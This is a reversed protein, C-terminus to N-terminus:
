VIYGVRRIEDETAGHERMWQAKRAMSAPKEVLRYRQRCYKATCTLGDSHMDDYLSSEDGPIILLFHDSCCSYHSNIRITKGHPLLMEIQQKDLPQRLQMVDGDIYCPIDFGALDQAEGHIYAYTADLAQNNSVMVGLYDLNDPNIYSLGFSATDLFKAQNSCTIRLKDMM